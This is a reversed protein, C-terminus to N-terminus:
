KQTEEFEHEAQIKLNKYRELMTKESFGSSSTSGIEAACTILEDDIIDAIERSLDICEDAKVQKKILHMLEFPSTCHGFCVSAYALLEARREANM